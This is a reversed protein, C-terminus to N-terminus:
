PCAIDGEQCDARLEATRKITLDALCGAFLAPYISGDRSDSTMFDCHADRFTIWARQAKRLLAREEGDDVRAMLDRYAKNLDADARAYEKESCENIEVQTQAGSCDLAQAQAPAVTLLLLLLLAPLIPMGRRFRLGFSSM